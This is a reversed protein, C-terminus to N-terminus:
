QVTRGVFVVVDKFALTNEDDTVGKYCEQLVRTVGKYCGQLVRTVGKDCGQLVRTFGKYFRV